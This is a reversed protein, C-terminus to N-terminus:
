LPAQVREGSVANLVTSSCRGPRSSRGGVVEGFSGDLQGQGGPRQRQARITRALGAPVLGRDQGVAGVQGRAATACRM